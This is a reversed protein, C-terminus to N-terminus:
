QVAGGVQDPRPEGVGVGVVAPAAPPDGELSRVLTRGVVGLDAKPQGADPFEPGEDRRDPANEAVPRRVPEADGEPRRDDLAPRQVAPRIEDMTGPPAYGMYFGLHVAQSALRTFRRTVSAERGSPVGFSLSKATARSM